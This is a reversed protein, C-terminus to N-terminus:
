RAKIVGCALRTGSDGAKLTEADPGAKGGVKYRDPVNANNDPKSHIIVSTGEPTLLQRVAFRDTMYGAKATGDKGVLLDPLDGAHDPHSGGGWHSGASFFPSGTAPDTSRPDCVGKGHIHMGHFGPPLGTATISVETGGEEEDEVRFTGVQQGAANKLAASASTDSSSPPAETMPIGPAIAGWGLM